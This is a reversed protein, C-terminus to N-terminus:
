AYGLSTPTGGTPTYFTDTLLEYYGLVNDSVRECPVFVARGDVIINGYLSGTLKASSASTSTTGICFDSVCDFDKATWTSDTKMGSTGTPTMVVNYRTGATVQSNYTGGNYRLYQAASTGVYLSYNTQASGNTYCGLINCATSADFSFRLTDSGKLRFNTIVYYPANNFTLGTLKRYGSPVGYVQTSGIYVKDVGKLEVANQGLKIM